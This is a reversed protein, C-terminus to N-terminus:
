LDRWEFTGNKLSLAVKLDRSLNKRELISDKVWDIPDDALDLILDDPTLPNLIVGRRVLPSFDKSLHRLIEDDSKPHVSVATRISEDGDLALRWLASKPSSPHRAVRIRIAYDSHSSAESLIESDVNESEVIMLLMRDDDRDYEFATSIALSSARRSRIVSYRVSKAPDQALKTEIDEPLFRDEALAERVTAAVDNSLSALQVMTLDKRRALHSRVYSTPSASIIHFLENSLSGRSVLAVEISPEHSKALARLDEESTKELSAITRNLDQNGLSILRSLQSTSTSPNLALDKLRDVESSTLGISDQDDYRNEKVISNTQESVQELDENTLSKKALESRIENSISPDFDFIGNANLWILVDYESEAASHALALFAEISNGLARLFEITSKSLSNEAELLSRLLNTASVILKSDRYIDALGMIKQLAVEIESM